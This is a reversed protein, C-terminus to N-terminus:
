SNWIQWSKEAQKHLMLLGNVTTAGHKKCHRLFTTEEPNYVLDIVLHNASIGGFPINVSDNINPFTGVPTCQIILTRDEVEQQTLNEFNLPASRAVTKFPIKYKDLVFQVAKAAGGNGLVLAARHTEGRHFLLTEEFGYVDTNYGKRIGSKIHICNVAGTKEAEPSLEDLYPIIAQKFPITVNLGVTKPDDLYKEADSVKQIDLIEYQADLINQAAFLKEFFIKSFSYSINKGLLGFKRM